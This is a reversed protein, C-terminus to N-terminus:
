LVKGTREEVM